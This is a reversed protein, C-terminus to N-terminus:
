NIAPISLSKFTSLCKVKTLRKSVFVIVSDLELQQAHLGGIGIDHSSNWSSGKLTLVLIGYYSM